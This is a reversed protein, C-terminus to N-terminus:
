LYQSIKPRRECYQPFRSNGEDHRDTRKDTMGCPVIRSGSSPNKNFKIRSYKVFIQGSLEIKM